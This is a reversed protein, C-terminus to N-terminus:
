ERNLEGIRQKASRRQLVKTCFAAGFEEPWAATPVELGSEAICIPRGGRFNPPM